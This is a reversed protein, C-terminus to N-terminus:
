VAVIKKVEPDKLDEGLGESSFSLLNEVLGNENVPRYRGWRKCGNRSGPCNASYGGPEIWRHNKGIKRLSIQHSIHLLSFTLFPHLKQGFSIKDM